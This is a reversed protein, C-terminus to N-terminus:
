VPEQNTTKYVKMFDGNNVVGIWKKGVVEECLSLFNGIRGACNLNSAVAISEEFVKHADDFQEAKLYAVGLNNLIYDRPKENQSEFIKLAEKFRNISSKM